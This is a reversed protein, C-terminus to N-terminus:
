AVHLLLTAILPGVIFKQKVLNALTAIQGLRLDTLLTAFQVFEAPSAKSLNKLVLELNKSQVQYVKLALRNLHEFSVSSLNKLNPLELLKEILEPQEAIAQGIQESIRGRVLSLGSREIVWGHKDPLETEIPQKLNNWDRLRLRFRQVAIHAPKGILNKDLTIYTEHLHGEIAIVAFGVTGSTWTRTGKAVVKAKSPPKNQEAM